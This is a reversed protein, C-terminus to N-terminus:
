ADVLERTRSSSNVRESQRRSDRYPATADSRVEIRHNRREPGTSAFGYAQILYALRLCESRVAPHEMTEPLVYYRRMADTAMRLAKPSPMGLPVDRPHEIPMVCELAVISQYRRKLLADM